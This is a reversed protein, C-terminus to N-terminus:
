AVRKGFKVQEYARQYDEKDGGARMILGVLMQEGKFYDKVVSEFETQTLKSMSNGVM